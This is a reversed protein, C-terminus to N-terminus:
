SPNDWRFVCFAQTNIGSEFLRDMEFAGRLRRMSNPISMTSVCVRVIQLYLRVRRSAIVDSGTDAFQSGHIRSPGPGRLIKMVACKKQRPLFSAIRSAVLLAVLIAAVSSEIRCWRVWVHITSSIGQPERGPPTRGPGSLVVMEHRSKEPAAREGDYGVGLLGIPRRPPEAALLARKGESLDRAQLRAM